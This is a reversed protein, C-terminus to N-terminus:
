DRTRACRFGIWNDKSSHPFRASVRFDPSSNVYFIAGRHVKYPADYNAQPGQPNSTPSSSYYTPSYYDSVWEGVNGIMDLVGYPSVGAPKSGVPKMGPPCSTGSIFVGHACTPENNGWPYKRGDTGRAAKEWEAETPLRKGLWQCYDTAQTWDVCTVPYDDMGDKGWNCYPTTCKGAAQCAAYASQTVETVDIEYEDLWVEHYPKENGKCNKDVAANCGMWFPGAQVLGPPPPVCKSDECIQQKPCTTGCGGCNSPDDSTNVCAGGCGIRGPPCECTRSECSAGLDCSKGCAGCNAPDTELDRCTGHCSVVSETDDCIQHYGLPNTTEEGGCRNMLVCYSVCTGSSGDCKATADDCSGCLVGGCQMGDCKTEFMEASCGAGFTATFEWEGTAQQAANKVGVTVAHSGSLAPSCYGLLYTRKVQGAIRNALAGFAKTLGTTDKAEFVGHPALAKLKLPDYDESELGVGLVHATGAQEAALVDGAPHAKATDRGDTFVVVYGSTLAGGANRQEFAARTTGLRGLADLIAGHLNTSKPAAVELTSVSAVAAQVLAPSLSHAQVVQSTGMGAFVEVSVQVQGPLRAWLEEVLYEAGAVLKERLPDTSESLDLVLTVFVEQGKKKLVTAEAEVSLKEGDESVVFSGDGLETLPNGFCDDVTFFVAVGAPQLSRGDLIRTVVCSTDGPDEYYVGDAVFGESLHTVEAWAVGGSAGTPLWEYSAGSPRSWFLTALGHNGQYPLEVRVPLAFELGEPEFAWVASYGTYGPPVPEETRTVTFTVEESLAGAPVLLRAGELEIEGGAPGVAESRSVEPLVVLADPGTTVDGGGTGDTRGPDQPDGCIGGLCSLGAVCLDGEICVCGSVGPTCAGGANRAAGGAGCGGAVVALLVATGVVEWRAGCRM